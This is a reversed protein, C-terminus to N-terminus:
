GRIIDCVASIGETTPKNKDGELCMYFMPKLLVSLGLVPALIHKKGSNQFFLLKNQSVILARSRWRLLM